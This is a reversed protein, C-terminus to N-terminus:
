PESQLKRDMREVLDVVVQNDIEFFRMIPRDLDTILMLVSSFAVALTVTALPSRRGVLSAQYGMILMSLSGTLYLTYWIVSPIRNSIAAELRATQIDMLGVISHLFQGRSLGLTDEARGERAHAVGLEWLEDQMAEAEDLLALVRQLDDDHSAEAMSLRGGMYRRLTARADSRYPEPMLDAQMFADNALRTEELMGQVRVEFHSQATAFTFALMFATLGLAAGMIARVQSHQAKASRGVGRNGIRFGIEICLVMLAVSLFFLVEPSFRDLFHVEAISM